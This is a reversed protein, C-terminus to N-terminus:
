DLKGSEILPSQGALITSDEGISSRSPGISELSSMLYYDNDIRPLCGSCVVSCSFGPM